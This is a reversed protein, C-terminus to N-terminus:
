VRRALADFVVTYTWLYSFLLAFLLLPLTYLLQTYPDPPSVLVALLNAVASSIALTLLFRGLNSLEMVLIIPFLKYKSHDTDELTPCYGATSVILGSQVYSM